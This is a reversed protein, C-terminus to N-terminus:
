RYLSILLERYSLAEIVPGLLINITIDFSLYLVSSQSFCQLTHAFIFLALPAYSSNHDKKSEHHLPRAIIQTGPKSAVMKLYAKEGCPISKVAPTAEDPVVSAM